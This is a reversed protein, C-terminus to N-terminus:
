EKIMTAGPQTEAGPADIENGLAEDLVSGFVAAIPEEVEDTGLGFVFKGEALEDWRADHIGDVMGEVYTQADELSSFTLVAYPVTVPTTQALVVVTFIDM